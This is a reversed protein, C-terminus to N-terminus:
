NDCFNIDIQYLESPVFSYPVTVVLSFKYLRVLEIRLCKMLTNTSFSPLTVTLVIFYPASTAM